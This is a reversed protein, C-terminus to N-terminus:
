ARRKGDGAIKCQMEIEDSLMKRADDLNSAGNLREAFEGLIQVRLRAAIKEAERIREPVILSTADVRAGIPDKANM